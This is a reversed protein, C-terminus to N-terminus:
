IQLWSVSSVFVAQERGEDFLTAGLFLAKARAAGVDHCSCEELVRWDYFDVRERWKGQNLALVQRVTGEVASVRRSEMLVIKRQGEFAQSESVTATLPPHSFSDRDWYRLTSVLSIDHTCLLDESIYPTNAICPSLYVTTNALLCNNNECKGIHQLAKINSEHRGSIKGSPRLLNSPKRLVGQPKPGTTPNNAESATSASQRATNTIDALIESKRAAIHTSASTDHGPKSQTAPDGVRTKKAPPCPTEDSEDRPRERASSVSGVLTTGDLTHFHRSQVITSTASKGITSKVTSKSGPTSTREREFKKRCKSELRKIWRRTEQSESDLPANRAAEAQERLEQMSICDKWSRDQHLKKVRPHRLMSFNANPPIQFGSGLVEFVLPTDFTVDIRIAPDHELDFNAPPDSANYPTASYAAATNAAELIPKPICFDQQITCVVQYRPRKNYRLVDDKNLLCGLHFDTWKLNALGSKLAQQANYTGGVVAFDAEDGLDHIYDKKLKIFSPHLTSADSHLPFYPVGCPKLVLGECREAISAAFQQVLAKRARPTDKFDVVKWESSMAKGPMKKYVERLWARREEVPRDMVLEDDLLLLDFFVVALHEHAKPPTDEDTGLYKGSRSVHKRIEDFPLICREKDSYVVLEGLLIAKRRFKCDPTKLRICEVLTQHINQRDITSDKGSKSFITICESAKQSLGLDIHIEIYEGDYKRELVWQRDGLLKVCHDISRAKYFNPRGVKVGLLPQLLKAAAQRHLPESRPDPRDPYEKLPGKLLRLAAEFNDQFRLLDPLLFHLSKLVLHENIRIPSLDKLILRVLWKCGNPDLRKFISGIASDREESSGAPLRTFSRDSFRCQGALVSLLDDVEDLAVAPSGQAGGAEQVRELCVALDGKGPQQFAKLDKTRAATLHLSRCLINCLRTSQIGYVRDTRREPLFASLLAVSSELDLENIARRHSKFWSKVVEKTTAYKEDLRIIPPDRLEINELRSLLICIEAFPFPM